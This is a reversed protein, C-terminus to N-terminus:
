ILDNANFSSLGFNPLTAVTQGHQFMGMGVSGSIYKAPGLGSVPSSDGSIDHSNVLQGNVYVKILDGIITAEIVSGNTLGPGSTQHELVDFDNLPGNWRVIDTYWNSSNFCRFLMEYGSIRTPQITTRLRLEVEQNFGSEETAMFVVGGARQNAAWPGNVIATPDNYPPSPSVGAACALNPLMKVDLWTQATRAGASIWVGGESIPTESLPNSQLDFVTSYSRVM